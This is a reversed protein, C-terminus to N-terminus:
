PGYDPKLGFAFIKSIVMGPYEENCYRFMGM